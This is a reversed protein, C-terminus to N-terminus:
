HQLRKRNLQLWQLAILTAANDIRFSNIRDRTLNNLVVDAEYVCVRIDEHEQDLGHIGGAQSLDCLGCYLFVREDCGGPSSMYNCIYELKQVDVDAEEKIERKIVAEPTEGAEIMGAVVELCWPGQSEAAMAGVRFQEVLGILDRDPDYLVAASANGRVFIERDIAESWGGSFLKHRLRRLEMKFFGQFLTKREIEEVDGVGFVSEKNSM